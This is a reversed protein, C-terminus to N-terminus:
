EKGLVLDIVWCGRVHPGDGRCHDLIDASDCGADQLADALIPMASFECSEYMQEALVVATDTRWELSFAVPHLPNGFLDHFLASQRAIAEKRHRRNFERYLTPDIRLSARNVFRNWVRGIAGRTANRRDRTSDEALELALRSCEAARELPRTPDPIAAINRGTERCFLDDQNTVLALVAMRLLRHMPLAAWLAGPRAAGVEGGGSVVLARLARHREVAGVNRDAHREAVSVGERAAASLRDWFERCCACAFLHLKRGSVPQPLDFFKKGPDHYDIQEKDTM